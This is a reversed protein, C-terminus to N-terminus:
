LAAAPPQSEVAAPKETSRLYKSLLRWGARLGFYALLWWLWQLTVTFHIASNLLGRAIEMLDRVSSNFTAGVGWNFTDPQAVPIKPNETLNITISSRTIQDALASVRDEVSHIEETVQSLRAQTDLLVKYGEGLGRKRQVALAEDLMKELTAQEALLTRMHSVSSVYTQGVDESKISQNILEGVQSLENWAGFFNKSPVRLTVFGSHHGADDKSISSDSVNGGYKAVITSIRNVSDQVNDAHIELTGTRVIYKEDIQHDQAYAAPAFWSEIISRGSSLAQTSPQGGSALPAKRGADAQMQTYSFGPQRWGPDSLLEQQWAPLSAIDEEQIVQAQGQSPQRYQSDYGSNTSRNSPGDQM